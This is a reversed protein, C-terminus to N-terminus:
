EKQRTINQLASQNLGAAINAKHAMTSKQCFLGFKKWPNM